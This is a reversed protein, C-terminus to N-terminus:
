KELLKLYDKIINEKNFYLSATNLNIKGMKELDDSSSNILQQLANAITQPLHSNCLFIGEKPIIRSIDSIDTSIVPKACAMGECLFNPFGEYKSFLGVADCNQIIPLINKTAPYFNFIQTLGLENILKKAKVLTDDNVHEDGYWNITVNNKDNVSLLLVANILETINKQEQHRAAILLNVKGNKKFSYNNAPKWYDLDVINYIVWMKRSNLFPNAKKVLDLNSQSNAVIFDAVFHFWRSFIMRPSTTISPHANREGIVLKWSKFPLSSFQCIFNAGDLFSLVSDFNHSRIFNRIKFLRKIKNNSSIQYIPIQYDDLHKKYFDNSHYTLFYVQHGYSLFGIGLNILQRQAGGSGLDDIVLLIKM